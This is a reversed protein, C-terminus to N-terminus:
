KMDPDLAQARAYAEQAETEDGRQQLAVGLNFWSVAEDPAIALARRYHGVAEDYRQAKLADNALRTLEQAVAPGYSPSEPALEYAKEYAALAAARDGAREHRIGLNYYAGAVTDKYEADDPVLESARLFAELAEADRDLRAYAVGLNYWSNHDKPSVEVARRFHKVAEEHKGASLAEHGLDGSDDGGDSSLIVLPRLTTAGAFSAALLVVAGVGGAVRRAIARRRAVGLVNAPPKAVVLGALGGFVAGAGHAVNAVNMVGAQTMAICFFFWLVFVTTTSPPMAGAFRADYRALVWMLAFNGYGVGSLGVGPGSLAYQAAESGVAFLLALGLLTFSGLERELRVGFIWLWYLNFALHLLDAHLLSSTAMRWPETWFAASTMHLAATDLGLHPAAHLGVAVVTIALCVPARLAQELSPTM